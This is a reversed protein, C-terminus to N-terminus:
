LSLSCNKRPTGHFLLFSWKMLTLSFNSPRYHPVRSPLLIYAGSHAWDILWVDGNQGVILNRPSIDQHTIVFTTFQFLPTDQPAENVRKCIDLTHNFWGEIEATDKFPGASYDTFFRGHCPGGGLLGPQPIVISQIQTIMAAIQIAIQRQDDHPLNHWCEDLAQGKFFDM